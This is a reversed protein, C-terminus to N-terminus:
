CWADRWIVDLRTASTSGTGWLQVTKSGPPLQWWVSDPFRVYRYLDTGNQHLVHRNPPLAMSIELWKGAALTVGDVYIVEGTEKLAVLPNSIPGTVKLTAPSYYNGANTVPIELTAGSVGGFGVPFVWPFTAGPSAVQGAAFDTHEAQSYWRPDAAVVGVIWDKLYGGSFRVPQDVRAKLQMAALGSPSCQLTIDGRLGRLARQMDRAVPNRAAATAAYLRGRLTGHKEGYYADAAIAGDAEPIEEVSSRVSPAELGDIAELTIGSAGDNCAVTTGDDGVILMTGGYEYV